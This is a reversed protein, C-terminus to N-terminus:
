VMQRPMLTPPLRLQTALQHPQAAMPLTLEPKASKRPNPNSPFLAPPRCPPAPSLLQTDFSVFHRSHAPQLSIVKTAFCTIRFHNDQSFESLQKSSARHSELFKFLCVIVGDKGLKLNTELPRLLPCWISERRLAREARSGENDHSVILDVLLRVLSRHQSSIEQESM